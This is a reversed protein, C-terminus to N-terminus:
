KILHNFLYLAFEKQNNVQNLYGNRYENYKMNIDSIIISMNSNNNNEKEIQFLFAKINEYSNKLTINNYEMM